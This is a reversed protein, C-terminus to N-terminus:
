IGSGIKIYNFEYFTASSFNTFSPNQKFIILASFIFLFKLISNPKNSIMKLRFGVVESACCFM